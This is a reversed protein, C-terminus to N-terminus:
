FNTGNEGGQRSRSKLLFSEHLTDRNNAKKKEELNNNVFENNEVIKEQIASIVPPPSPPHTPAAFEEAPNINVHVNKQSAM